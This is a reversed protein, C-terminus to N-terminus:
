ADVMCWAGLVKWTSPVTGPAPPTAKASASGTRGQVHSPQFDASVLSSLSSAVSVSTPHPATSSLPEPVAEGPPARAPVFGEPGRCASPVAPAFPLASSSLSLLLLSHKPNPEGMPCWRPPLCPLSPPAGALGAGLAGGVFDASVSLCSSPGSRRVCLCLWLFSWLPESPSLLSGLLAPAALRSGWVAPPEPIVCAGLGLCPCRTDALAPGATHRLSGAPSWRPPCACIGLVAPSPSCSASPPRPLPIRPRGWLVRLSCSLCLIMWIMWVSGRAWPLLGLGAGGLHVCVGLSDCCVTLVLLCACVLASACPTLCSCLLVPAPLLSGQAVRAGAALGRAPRWM